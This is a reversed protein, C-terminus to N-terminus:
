QLYQNETKSLNINLQKKDLLIGKGQKVKLFAQETEQSYQTTSQHFFPSSIQTLTQSAFDQPYILPIHVVQMNLLKVTKPCLNVDNNIKSGLFTHTLASSIYTSCNSSKSKKCYLRQVIMARLKKTSYGLSLLLTLTEIQL